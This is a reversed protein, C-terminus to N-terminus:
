KSPLDARLLARWAVRGRHSILCRNVGDEDKNGLLWSNVPPRQAPPRLLPPQGSVSPGPRQGGPRPHQPLGPGARGRLWRRPAAAAGARGGAAAAREAALGSLPRPASLRGPGPVQTSAMPQAPGPARLWAHRDVPPARSEAVVAPWTNTAARGRPVGPSGHLFLRGQRYRGQGAGPGLPARARGSNRPASKSFLCM